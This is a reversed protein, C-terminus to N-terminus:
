GNCTPGEEHRGVGFSLPRVVAARPAATPREAPAGPQADRKGLSIEPQWENFLSM